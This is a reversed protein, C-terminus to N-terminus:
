LSDGVCLYGFTESHDANTLEVVPESRGDNSFTASYESDLRFKPLTNSM